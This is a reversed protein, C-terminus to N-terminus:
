SRPAGLTMMLRNAWAFLAAAALADAIEDTSLGERELAAIDAGSLRSPTLAVHSALSALARQRGNTLASEGVQALRVATTRDGSLSVQRRGHVSACYECGTTLSTALAVLERDELALAGEGTMIEDYLATRAALIEPEHALTRYFPTLTGPLGDGEARVVDAPEVWPQWVLVPFRDADAPLISRLPAIPEVEGGREPADLVGAGADLRARFSAYAVTQGAAVIAADAYGLDLLRGIDEGDLDSPDVAMQDALEVLAAEAEGLEHWREPAAIIAADESAGIAALRDSLRAALSDADNVLAARLAVRLRTRTPLVPDDGEPLVLADVADVLPTLTPRLATM